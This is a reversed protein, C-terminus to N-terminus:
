MVPKMHTEFFSPVTAKNLPSQKATDFQLEYIDGFDNGITSPVDGTAENFVEVFSIMQPRVIKLCSQYAADLAQGAGKELYGSEYLSVIELSLQKLAFIKLFAELYHKCRMDRWQNTELRERTIRFVVYTIHQRIVRNVDLAFVENEKEKASAESAQMVKTLELASNAARFALTDELFGLSLFDNKQKNKIM